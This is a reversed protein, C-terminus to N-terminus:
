SISNLFWNMQWWIEADRMDEKIGRVRFLGGTGDPAYDRNLFRDIIDKVEKEDYIDDTMGSLGLNSMMRWFWHSTRNGIAPNDMIEEEMRIALAIMMELVSCRQSRNIMEAIHRAEDIDNGTLEMGFRYRLDLGDRYRNKDNPISYTFDRFFLYQIVKEYKMEPPFQGKIIFSCLWDYYRMKLTFPM